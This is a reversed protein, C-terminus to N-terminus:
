ADLSSGGPEFGRALVAAAPSPARAERSAIFVEHVLLPDDLAAVAVPPGPAEADSRPLVAVGLGHSVLSRVRMADDSEFAIRPDFGRRAAAGAVQDRITAGRRFGVFPEAALADVPVVARAALRHDPPLCAVLPEAAISRMRLGRRSGADVATVFALDIADARLLGCLTVSLEERLRLDVAPHARHFAALRASIDLPGPTATVGVVVTGALLDAMARAESRAADVEALARRAREVFQEGADTLSVRRTTRTVLPVGLEAELKRIQRSLAPQAVSASQAARTFHREDALAVIYRLQRLEM